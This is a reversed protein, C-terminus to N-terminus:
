VMRGHRHHPHNIVRLAAMVRAANYPDPPAIPQHALIIQLKQVLARAIAVHQQQGAPIQMSVNYHDISELNM